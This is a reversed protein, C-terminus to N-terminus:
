SGANWRKKRLDGGALGGGRGLDYGEGESLFVRCAWDESAGISEAGFASAGGSGGYLLGDDCEGVAGVGM